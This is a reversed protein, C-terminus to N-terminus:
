YKASFSNEYGLNQNYSTSIRVNLDRFNYSFMLSPLANFIEFGIGIEIPNNLYKVGSNLLFKKYHDGYSSVMFEFQRDYKYSIALIPFFKLDKEDIDHLIKLIVSVHFPGFIHSHSFSYAVGQNRYKIGSEDLINTFLYSFQISSYSNESTKLSYAVSSNLDYDKSSGRYDIGIFLRSEGFKLAMLGFSRRLERLTFKDIIGLSLFGDRDWSAGSPNNLGNRLDHVALNSNMMAGSFANEVFQGRLTSLCISCFIISFFLKM